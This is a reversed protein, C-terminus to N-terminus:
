GATAKTAREEPAEAASAVPRILLVPAHGQLMRDATSGLVTRAIGARAHTSMVVLDVANREVFNLLMNASGGQFVMIEVPHAITSQTKELYARASSVLEEDLRPWYMQPAYMPFAEASFPAVRVLTVKAGFARALELAAPLAAEALASGGLPVLIHKPAFGSAVTEAVEKGVVLLPVHSTHLLNGATSGYMWRNLGSRGHTSAVILSADVERATELIAEHPYNVKVVLEADSVALRDRVAALYQLCTERPRTVMEESWPGHEPIDSTYAATMLVLRGQLATALATAYPLSRESIASGDLPVLIPDNALM